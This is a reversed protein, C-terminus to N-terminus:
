NEISRSTSWRYLVNPLDSETIESGQSNVKWMSEALELMEGYTLTRLAEAIEDLRSHGPEDNRGRLSVTSSNMPPSFSAPYFSNAGFCEISDGEVPYGISRGNIPNAFDDYAKDAETHNRRWKKPRYENLISELDREGKPLEFRSM